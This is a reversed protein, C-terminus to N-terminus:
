TGPFLESVEGKTDLVRYFEKLEEKEDCDELDLIVQSLLEYANFETNETAARLQTFLAQPSTLGDKGFLFKNVLAQVTAKTSQDTM